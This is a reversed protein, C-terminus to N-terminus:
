KKLFYVNFVLQDLLQKTDDDNACQTNKLENSCRIIAIEFSSRDNKDEFSNQLFMIDKLFDVDPCLLFQIDNKDM